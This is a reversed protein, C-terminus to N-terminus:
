LPLNESEEDEILDLLAIRLNNMSEQVQFNQKTVYTKDSRNLLLAYDHSVFGHDQNWKYQAIPDYDGDKESTVVSFDMLSIYHNM